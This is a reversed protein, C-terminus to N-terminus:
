RRLGLLERIQRHLDHPLNWIFYSVLYAGGRVVQAVIDNTLPHFPRPLIGLKVFFHTTLSPARERRLWERVRERIANKGWTKLAEHYLQTPFTIYIAIKTSM